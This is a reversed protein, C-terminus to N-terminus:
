EDGKEDPPHAEPKDHPDEKIPIPAVGKVGPFKQQREFDQIGLSDLEEGTDMRILIKQNKTWHYEWQTQVPVIKEKTRIERAVIESEAKKRKLQSKYTGAVNKAEEIIRDMEEMLVPLVRGRENIEAESLEVPLERTEKAGITVEAYLDGVCKMCLGSPTTGKKKCKSCKGDMDIKIEPKKTKSM